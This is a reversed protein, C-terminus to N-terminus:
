TRPRSRPATSCAVGLSPSRAAGSAALQAASACADLLDSRAGRGGGRRGDPAPRRVRRRRPPRGRRHAAPARAAGRRGRHDARRRRQPRALRQDDQLPRHRAGAARRQRRLPCGARPPARGRARLLPPQAARDAPRPRGHVAAAGRLAQAGHRGPGPRAPPRAARRRRARRRRADPREGHARRRHHLAQRVPLDHRRGRRVGLAGRPSCALDDPHTIAEDSTAELAEAEYGTIACLAPNVRLFRGELSMLAMGIPAAEFARRFREEARHRATVDTSIGAVGLVRGDSAPSPSACRSTPAAASSRRSCSPAARSPAGDTQASFRKGDGLALPGRGHPRPDRRAAPRRHARVRHERRHLARRRGERLLGPPM